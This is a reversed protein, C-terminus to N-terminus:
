KIMETERKTFTPSDRNALGASHSTQRFRQTQLSAEHKFANGRNKTKRPSPVIGFFLAGMLKQKNWVYTPLFRWGPRIFPFSFLHTQANAHDLWIAQFPQIKSADQDSQALHIRAICFSNCDHTKEMIFVFSHMGIQALKIGRSSKPTCYNVNWLLKTNTCLAERTNQLWEDFVCFGTKRFSESCLHWGSCKTSSPLPVPM